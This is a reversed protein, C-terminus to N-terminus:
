PARRLPVTRSLARILVSRDAAERDRRGDLWCVAAVIGLTIGAALNVGWERGPMPWVWLGSIAKAWSALAAVAAVRATVKVSMYRRM